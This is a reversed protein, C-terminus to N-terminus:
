CPLCLTDFMTLYISIQKHALLTTDRHGFRPHYNVQFLINYTPMEWLAKTGIQFPLLPLDSM